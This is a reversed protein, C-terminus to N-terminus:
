TLRARNLIAGVGHARPNDWDKITVEVEPALGRISTRMYDHQRDAVTQIFWHSDGKDDAEAFCRFMNSFLLPIRIRLRGTMVPQCYVKKSLDDQKWEEHATAVFLKNMAALTRFVNQITIMQATWDAQEPHKGYRGNLYQTRDMVADSFTTFSDMGIWDYKDFTGDAYANDFHAEWEPYALPEMGAKQGKTEKKGEKSLTHVNLDLVDPLFKEYDIDAGALSALSNPDFVYVFGRGPLTRFQTTKGSGANGILLVSEHDAGKIDQANPM